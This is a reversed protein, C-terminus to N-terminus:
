PRVAAAASIPWPRPGCRQEHDAGVGHGAESSGSSRAVATSNPSPAPPAPARRGRPVLCRGAAAPGPGAAGPRTAQSRTPRGRPRRGAPRARRPSRGGPWRRSRPPRRASGASPRARPTGGLPAPRPPTSRGCAPGPRSCRRRRPATRGGGPWRGCRRRRARGCRCRVRACRADVISRKPLVDAADIGSASASAASLRYAHGVAVEHQQAAEAGAQGDAGRQPAPARRGRGRSVLSSAVPPARSRRTPRCRSPRRRAGQGGGAVADGDAVARRGAGGVLDHSAMSRAPPVAM